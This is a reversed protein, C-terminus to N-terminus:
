RAKRTGDHIEKEKEKLRQRAKRASNGCRLSCFDQNTKTRTFRKRCRGCVAVSESNALNLLLLLHLAWVFDDALVGLSLSDTRKDRWIRLTGLGNLRDTIARPLSRSEVYDLDHRALSIAM